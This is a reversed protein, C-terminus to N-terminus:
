PKRWTFRKCNDNSERWIDCLCFVEMMNKVVEVSKPNNIHKYHDYDLEPDLVLNWDGVVIINSSHTDIRSLWNIIGEYFQPSDRNPGYLNVLVFDEGM